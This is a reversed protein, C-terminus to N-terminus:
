MVTKRCWVGCEKMVTRMWFTCIKNGGILCFFPQNKMTLEKSEMKKPFIPPVTLPNHFDLAPLSPSGMKAWTDALVRHRSFVNSACLHLGFVSSTWISLASIWTRIWLNLYVTIRLFATSWWMSEEKQIFVNLLVLTALWVYNMSSSFWNSFYLYSFTTM